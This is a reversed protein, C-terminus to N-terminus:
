CRPTMSSSATSYVTSNKPTSATHANSKATSDPHALNSTFTVLIRIKCMGTALPRSNPATTPRSLRSRSPCDTWSTTSSSSPPRKIASPIFECCACGPATMSRPSSTTSVGGSRGLPPVPRAAPLTGTSSGATTSTLPEIFKVDIQVRHGPQQKEYRKWKRDRRQYRQSAPLRNLGLRKLIRWVGSRSVAVDHYRHLYMSIKTPGFHYTRRLHVIKDVVEADTAHPCTKPRHSRDRLGELGEARYRRLWTYYVQRSIGFYRATMAVNGTVEEVHRLVALKRRVSRDSLPDSV